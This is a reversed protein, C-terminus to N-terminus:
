NCRGFRPILIRSSAPHNPWVRPSRSALKWPQVRLRSNAELAPFIEEALKELEASTNNTHGSASLAALSEEARRVEDLAKGADAKGAELESLTKSASAKALAAVLGQVSREYDLTRTQYPTSRETLDGVRQRILSIGSLGAGVIAANITVLVITNAALKSRIKM